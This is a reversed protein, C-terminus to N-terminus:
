KKAIVFTFELPDFLEDSDGFKDFLREKFIELNRNFEDEDFMSLTSIFKNEVKKMFENRNRKQTFHTINQSHVDSFGAARLDTVLIDIDPMRACDIEIVGPFM